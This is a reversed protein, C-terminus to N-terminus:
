RRGPGAGPWAAAAAGGPGAAEGLHAVGLGAARCAAAIGAADTRMILSIWIRRVVPRSCTSRPSSAAAASCSGTISSRSCRPMAQPASASGQFM